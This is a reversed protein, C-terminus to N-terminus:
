TVSSKIQTHVNLDKFYDKYEDRGCIASLKMLIIDQISALRFNGM